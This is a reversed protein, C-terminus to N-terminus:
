RFYTAAVTQGAKLDKQERVKKVAELTACQLKPLHMSDFCPIPFLFIKFCAVTAAIYKLLIEFTEIKFAHSFYCLGCVVNYCNASSFKVNSIIWSIDALKIFFPKLPPMNTM